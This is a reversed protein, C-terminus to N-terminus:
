QLLVREWFLCVLLLGEAWSAWDRCVPCTLAWSSLVLVRWPSVTIGSVIGLGSAMHPPRTPGAQGRGKPLQEPSGQAKEAEEPREDRARDKSDLSEQKDEGDM